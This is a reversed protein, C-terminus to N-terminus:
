LRPGGGSPVAAWAGRTGRAAFYGEGLRLGFGRDGAGRFLPYHPNYGRGRGARGTHRVPRPLRPRRSRGACDAAPPASCCRQHNMTTVLAVQRRLEGKLPPHVPRATEPPPSGHRTKVLAAPASSTADQEQVARRALAARPSSQVKCCGGHPPPCPGLPNQPQGGQDPRLM